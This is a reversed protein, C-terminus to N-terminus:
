IINLIINTKYFKFYHEFGSCYKSLICVRWKLSLAEQVNLVIVQQEVEYKYLFQSLNNWHAKFTAQFSFCLFWDHKILM